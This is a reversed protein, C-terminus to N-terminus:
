VEQIWQMVQSLPPARAGSMRRAGNRWNRKKGRLDARGFSPEGMTLVLVVQMAPKLADGFHWLPGEGSCALISRPNLRSKTM